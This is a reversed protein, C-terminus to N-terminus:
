TLFYVPDCFEELTVLRTKLRELSTRILGGNQIGTVVNGGGKNKITTPIAVRSISKVWNIEKGLESVIESAKRDLPGQRILVSELENISKLTETFQAYVSAPEWEGDLLEINHLVDKTPNLAESKLVFTNRNRNARQEGTAAMFALSGGVLGLFGAALTEWSIDFQRGYIAGTFFAAGITGALPVSNLWDEFKRM